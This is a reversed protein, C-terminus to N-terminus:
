SDIWESSAVVVRGTDFTARERSGVALRATFGPFEALGIRVQVVNIVGPVERFLVATVQSPTVDQGVNAVMAAVADITAADGAYSQDTELDVEVWVALPDTRSFLMVRPQGSKDTATGSELGYTEIGAAKTDWIVQAVDDDSAIDPTGDSIVSEFSKAPLGNVPANTTNEIVVASSVAPLGLLAARIADVNTSGSVGLSADQRERYDADSETLSGLVADQQNQISTWGMVPTNIINITFAPGATPGDVISKWRITHSGSSGATYDDVPTWLKGSVDSSEAFHVGSLLVTGVNLAMIGNFESPKASDRPIGILKGINDLQEGEASDRNLAHYISELLEWLLANKRADIGNIQGTPQDPDPDWTPSIEARQEANIEALSEAQTLGSFGEDTLGAM